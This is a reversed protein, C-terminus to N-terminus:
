YRLTLGVGNGTMSLKLERKNWFSSPQLGENYTDVATKAKKNFNQSLPIAVVILGAGIGAMVWNPDGGGIATGIPWGVMFGGAYGFIMAMTYTSQASKIEKYAQENPKMSLVLGNMTLRKTGQYFQYGGFAKKMSIPNSVTQGFTFTLSVLLLSIIITIRKM